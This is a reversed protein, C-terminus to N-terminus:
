FGGAEAQLIEGRATQVQVGRLPSNQGAQLPIRWEREAGALVNVGDKMPFAQKWDDGAITLNQVKVRRNGANLLRLCTDSISVASQLHAICPKWRLANVIPGTPAVLVPLDYRMRFNINMGSGMPTVVVSESVDELVLRYALEEPAPRGARLAVRFIQQMGPKLDAIPPTVLLDDSPETLSEGKDDQKWRLLNAQLRVPAAAHSSLTIAVSTVRQRAGLEIVVPSVLVQATATGASMVLSLICMFGRILLHCLLPEALRRKLRKCTM